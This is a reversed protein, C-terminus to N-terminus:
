EARKGILSRWMLVPLTSAYDDTWRQFGARSKLPVWAGDLPAERRPRLAGTLQQLREPTAALAVWNSGTM